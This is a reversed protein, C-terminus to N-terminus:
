GFRPAIRSAQVAAASPSEERRLAKYLDRQAYAYFCFMLFLIGVPNGGNIARREFFGIVAYSLIGALVLDRSRTDAIRFAALISSVILTVYWVFGFIGTDALMALYANHASRNFPMFQEHQRFGVGFIPSQRWLDAAAQWLEDRGTFGQGLGRYPDDIKMLNDLFAPLVGSVYPALLVLLTTGVAVGGFAAMLKRDKLNAIHCLAVAATAITLGVINSRSSAEYITLFGAAYCMMALLRPRIVLATVATGLGMLGYLNPELDNAVLRGWRYEGTFDIYLLFPASAISFAGAITRLLRRDACGAVLIAAACMFVLEGVFVLPTGSAGNFIYSVLVILVFAMSSRAPSVLGVTNFSLLGGQVLFPIVGLIVATELATQNHGHFVYFVVEIGLLWIAYITGTIVLRM